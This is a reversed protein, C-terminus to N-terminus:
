LPKGFKGRIVSLFKSLHIKMKIMNGICKKLVKATHAVNGLYLAKDYSITLKLTLSSPMNWMIKLIM